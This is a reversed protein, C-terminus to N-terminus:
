IAKSSANKITPKFQTFKEFGTFEVTNPIFMNDDSSIIYKWFLTSGRPVHPRPKRLYQLEIGKSHYFLNIRIKKRLDNVEQIKSQHKDKRITSNQTSVERSQFKVSVASDAVLKEIDQSKKRFSHKKQKNTFHFIKFYRLTDFLYIKFHFINYLENIHGKLCKNKNWSIAQCVYVKCIENVQLIIRDGVM